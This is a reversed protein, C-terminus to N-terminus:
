NSYSPTLAFSGSAAPAQARLMKRDRQLAPDVSQPQVACFGILRGPYRAISELIYDNTMVCLEHTTWGINLVVSIDVGDRDMADIVDEASAMKAEKKSYLISFTPDIDAYKSRNKRIEPPMIHTHFDIIM